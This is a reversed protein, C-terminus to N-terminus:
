SRDQGSGRSVTTHCGDRRIEKVYDYHRRGLERHLLFPERDTVIELTSSPDLGEIAELARRMPEPPDLGRLDLPRSIQSTM